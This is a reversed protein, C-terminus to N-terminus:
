AKKKRGNTPVKTTKAYTDNVAIKLLQVKYGYGNLIKRTNNLNVRSFFPLHLGAGVDDSIVAYVVTFEDQAPKRDVQILETFPALLAGRVKQRFTADIQILQGSVFGQSFLHSFVSSKGYIKVHILERDMSFLDCVEVKGHGGGHVIPRADLLAYRGPEALALAENYAGEGGGLYEPLNLSSFPISAFDKDTREVFGPAVNFWRGDNLIYKSGQLDVEAYLCRFVPWEKFVKQHDADACSVRRTKLLDLTIATGPKLSKRFGDWNIDPHLENRGYTYMFGKVQGWEIMDPIALWLGQFDGAALKADLAAELSEQLATSKTMRVNNVWQHDKDSLDAEFAARYEGLLHPLDQLKM